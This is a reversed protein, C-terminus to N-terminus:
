ASVLPGFQNSTISDQSPLLIGEIFRSRGRTDAYQGGEGRELSPATQRRLSIRLLGLRVGNSGDAKGRTSHNGSWRNNRSSATNKM